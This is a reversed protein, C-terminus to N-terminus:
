FAWLKNMTLLASVAFPVELPSARGDLGVVAQPNDHWHKVLLRIGARTEEPVNTMDAGYGATWVIQIGNTLRDPTPWSATNRLAVRGVLSANDVYYNAASMVTAVDSDDYTTISAVSVLPPRPLELRWFNAPIIRSTQGIPENWPWNDLYATYTRNILARGQFNEAFATAAAILGALEPDDEQHDLRLDTRVEAISVPYNTPATTVGPNMM